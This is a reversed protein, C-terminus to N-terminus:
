KSEHKRSCCKQFCRRISFRVMGFCVLDGPHLGTASSPLKFIEDLEYDGEREGVDDENLAGTSFERASRWSQSWHYHNTTNPPEAANTGCSPYNTILRRRKSPTESNENM